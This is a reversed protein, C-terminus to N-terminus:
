SVSTKPDHDLINQTKSTSPIKDLENLSKDSKDSKNFISVDTDAIEEYEISEGGIFDKVPM